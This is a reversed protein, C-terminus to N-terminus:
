INKPRTLRDPKSNILNFRKAREQSFKDLSAITEAYFDAWLTSEPAAQKGEKQKGRTFINPIQIKKGTRAYIYERLLYLAIEPCYYNGLYIDKYDPLHSILYKIKSLTSPLTNKDVKDGVVTSVLLNILPKLAAYYDRMQESDPTTDWALRSRLEKSLTLMNEFDLPTIVKIGKKADEDEEFNAFAGFDKKADARVIKELFKPQQKPNFLIINEKNDDVQGDVTSAPQFTAAKPVRRLNPAGGGSGGKDKSLLKLTLIKKAASKFIGQIVEQKMKLHTELLEKNETEDCFRSMTAKQVADDNFLRTNMQYGFIMKALEQSQMLTLMKTMKEENHLEVLDREDPTLLERDVHM